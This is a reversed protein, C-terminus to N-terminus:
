LRPRREYYHADVTKGDKKLVAVVQEPDKAAYVEDQLDGGGLNKYNAKQFEM